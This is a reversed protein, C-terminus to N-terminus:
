AANSDGGDPPAPDVPPDQNSNAAPQTGLPFMAGQMYLRNGAPDDTPRNELARAENPQMIGHQIAAAYGDMRTKFDGRLLGDVSMEIWMSQSARGFIKLNMEQEFCDVWRLLTHKVFHLDQQETNSFTGHTLDQLFVPPLSYIRAVQEILFRHTEVMQSKNPDAGIPKVELGAPMVLAQRKDKAAKRVAQDLDDAARTMAAGTQFNGTVAFPPVGGNQFFKSAYQTAAIAMGIVDAHTAIPGRHSLGDPKLMFPIDIVEAAQYVVKRGGDTYEYVKRGGTRRIQVNAPDLPWLNIVDNRQNREIFTISRGVTLVADFVARRWTYSSMEENPADQMLAALPGTVRQRGDKRTKRYVHLPLSAMTGSLFNVAASVAPVGLANDTTVSIGAASVGWGPMGFREWFDSASVPVRPNEISREEAPTVRQRRFLDLLAM